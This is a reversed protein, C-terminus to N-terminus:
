VPPRRRDSSEVELDQALNKVSLPSGVRDPLAEALRELLSIERVRDVRQLHWRRLEKENQALFPEPFGGFKLLANLVGKEYGLEPLSLPHM